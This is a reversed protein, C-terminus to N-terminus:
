SGWTMPSLASRYDTMTMVQVAASTSSEGVSLTGRELSAKNQYAWANSIVGDEIAEFLRDVEYRPLDWRGAPDEQNGIVSDDEPRRVAVTIAIAAALAAAGAGVTLAVRKFRSGREARCDLCLGAPEEASLDAGCSRCRHKESIRRM